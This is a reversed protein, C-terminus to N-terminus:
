RASAAPLSHRTTVASRRRYSAQWAPTRACATLQTSSNSRPLPQFRPLEVCSAAHARVALEAYTAPIVDTKGRPDSARVKPARLRLIRPGTAIMTSQPSQGMDKALVTDSESPLAQM